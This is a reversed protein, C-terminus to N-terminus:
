FAFRVEVDGECPCVNWSIAVSENLRMSVISKRDDDPRPSALGFDTVDPVM